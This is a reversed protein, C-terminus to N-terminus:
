TFQYSLPKLYNFLNNNFKDTEIEQFVTGTPVLAQRATASETKPLSRRQAKILLGGLVLPEAVTVLGSTAPGLM